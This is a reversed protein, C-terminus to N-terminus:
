KNILSSLKMKLQYTYSCLTIAPLLNLLSHQALPTDHFECELSNISLCIENLHEIIATQKVPNLKSFESFFHKQDKTAM